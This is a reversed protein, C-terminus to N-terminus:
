RRLFEARKGGNILWRIYSPTMTEVGEVATPSERVFADQTKRAWEHSRGTAYYQAIAARTEPYSEYLPKGDARPAEGRFDYKM